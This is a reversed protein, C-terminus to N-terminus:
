GGVISFIHLMVVVQAGHIPGLCGDLSRLVCSRLEVVVGHVEQWVLAVGSM